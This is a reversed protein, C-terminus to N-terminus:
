CWTRPKRIPTSASCRARRKPHHDGYHVVLFRELPFCHRLDSVLGDLDIKALFLRRLYEHMEPDTGPGGGPVDVDPEYKFDYPWHAAM